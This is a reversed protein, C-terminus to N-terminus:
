KVYNRRNWITAALEKGSKLYILRADKDFCNGTRIDCDLCEVFSYPAGQIKKVSGNYKKSKLSVEKSNCCPCRKLEPINDM